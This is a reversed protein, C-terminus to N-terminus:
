TYLCFYARLALKPYPHFCFLVSIFGLWFFFGALPELHLETTSYKVQIYSAWLEIGLVVFYLFVREVVKGM